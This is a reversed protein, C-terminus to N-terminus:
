QVLMQQFLVDRIKIPHVAESVRFLLEERLRYLGASGRLDDVRLERLYTQFNDVIRPKLNDIVPKDLMSELELQVVLKLFTQRKGDTNLNVVMEGLDYFVAGSKDKDGGGHADGGGHGGEAPKAASAVGPVPADKKGGLVGTFLLAAVIGGILVVAAVAAIIIIKMPLKRKAGEEPKAEGEAGEKDAPKAAAAAKDEKEEKKEDKKKDAV